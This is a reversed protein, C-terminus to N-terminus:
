KLPVDLRLCWRGDEIEGAHPVERGVTMGHRGLKPPGARVGVSKRGFHPPIPLFVASRCDCHLSLGSPGLEMRPWNSFSIFRRVASV